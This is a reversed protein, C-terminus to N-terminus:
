YVTIICRGGAPPPNLSEFKFQYKSGSHTATLFGNGRYSCGSWGVPRVAPAPLASAPPPVAGLFDTEVPGHPLPDLAVGGTGVVFQMPAGPDSKTVVQFLHRDGSFVVKVGKGGAGRWAALMMVSSDPIFPQEDDDRDLAFVPVHTALWVDRGGGAASAFRNVDKVVEIMRACMAEDAGRSCNSVITAEPNTAYALSSDSVILRVRLSLDLAYTVLQEDAIPCPVAPGTGFFLNYGAPADGHGCNEHNGRIPIWPARELLPRGPAFFYENWAAWDDKKVYLYDGVHIALAPWKSAQAKSVDAFRWQNDKPGPECKQRADRRCGTDGSVVIPSPETGERWAPPLTMLKGHHVALSEAKTDLPAECVTIDAFGDIGNKKRETMAHVSTTGGQTKSFSPCTGEPSAARGAWVVARLSLAPECKVSRRTIDAADGAKPALGAVCDQNGPVVQIWQALVEQSTPGAARAAPPPPPAHRRTFVDIVIFAFAFLLGLALAILPISKLWGMKYAQASEKDTVEYPPQLARAALEVILALALLAVAILILGLSLTSLRVPGGYVVWLLAALAALVIWLLPDSRGNHSSSQSTSM